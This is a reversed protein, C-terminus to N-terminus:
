RLVHVEGVDEPFMWESGGIKRVYPRIECVERIIYEGAEAGRSRNTKAVGEKGVTGGDSVRVGNAVVSSGMGVVVELEVLGIGDVVVGVVVGVGVLGCGDFGLGLATTGWAMSRSSCNRAMKVRRPVMM